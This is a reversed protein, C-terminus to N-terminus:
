SDEWREDVAFGLAEYLTISWVRGVRPGGREDLGRVLRALQMVTARNM